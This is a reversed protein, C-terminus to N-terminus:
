DNREGLPPLMVVGHHLTGSHTISQEPKGKARETVAKWMQHFAAHTKDELIEKVQQKAKESALLEDCWDRLWNPPRGGAGVHGPVGGTLLAGGHPQPVLTATVPAALKAALKKAPKKGKGRGEPPM